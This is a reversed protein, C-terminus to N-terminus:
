AWATARSRCRRESGTGTGRVRVHRAAERPLAGPGRAPLRAAASRHGLARPLDRRRRRAARAARSFQLDRRQLRDRLPCRALGDAPAARPSTSSPASRTFGLHTGAESWHGSDDPGRHHLRKIADDLRTSAGTGLVAGVIGCMGRERSLVAEFSELARGGLHVEGRRACAGCRGHAAAADPDALLAGAGVGLRRRRGPAAAHGVRRRGGGRAIRQLEVRRGAPRVGHGRRRQHRLVGRRDLAPCLRGGPQAARAAQRARDARRSAGPGGRGAGARPHALGRGRQGSGVVLYHVDDQWGPCRPCSLACVRGASWGARHQRDAPCERARGLARRLEPNRAVAIFASPTSATTCLSRRPAGM